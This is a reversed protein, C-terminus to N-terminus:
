TRPFPYRIISSFGSISESRLVVDLVLQVLEQEKRAGLDPVLQKSFNPVKRLLDIESVLSKQCGPEKISSANVVIKNLIDFSTKCFNRGSVFIGSWNIAHAGFDHINVFGHSWERPIRVEDAM